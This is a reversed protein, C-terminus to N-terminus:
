EGLLDLAAVAAEVDVDHDRDRIRAPRRRQLERGPEAHGVALAEDLVAVDPAGEDHRSLRHARARHALFQIGHRHLEGALVDHQHVIGDHARLTNKAEAAGGTRKGLTYPMSMGVRASSIAASRLSSSTARSIPASARTYWSRSSSFSATRRTLGRRVPKSVEHKSPM